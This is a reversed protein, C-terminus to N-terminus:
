ISQPEQVEDSNEDIEESTEETGGAEDAELQEAPTLSERLVYQEIYKVKDGLYMTFISTTKEDEIFLHADSPYWKGELFQRTQSPCLVAPYKELWGALHLKQERNLTNSLFLKFQYKGRPYRNCVRKRKSSNQLFEVEEPTEPEWLEIIWPYGGAIQDATARDACFISIHPGERRTRINDIKTLDDLWIRYNDRDAKSYKRSHSGTTFIYSFVDACKLKYAWKGFYLKSTSSHKVKM